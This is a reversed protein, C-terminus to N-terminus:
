AFLGGIGDRLRLVFRELARVRDEASHLRAVIGSEEEMLEDVADGEPVEKSKRLPPVEHMDQMTVDGPESEAPEAAPEETEKRVPKSKKPGRSIPEIICGLGRELQHQHLGSKRQFTCGCDLCLAPHPVKEQNCVKAHSKLNTSSLIRRGCPCKFLGEADRKMVTTKSKADKKNSKKYSVLVSDDHTTHIHADLLRKEAFSEGCATCTEVTKTIPVM